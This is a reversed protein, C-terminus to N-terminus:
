KLKTRKAPPTPTSEGEVSRKPPLTTTQVREQLPEQREQHLKQAGSSAPMMAKPKIGAELHIGFNKSFAEIEVPHLDNAKFFSRMAQIFQTCEPTDVALGFQHFLIYFEEEVKKTLEKHKIKENVAQQFQAIQSPTLHKLMAPIIEEREQRTTVTEIPM